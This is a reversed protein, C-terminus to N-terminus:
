GTTRGDFNLSALPVRLGAQGEPPYETRYDYRAKLAPADWLENLWTPRAM